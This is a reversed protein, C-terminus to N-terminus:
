GGVTSELSQRDVLGAYIGGKDVLEDHTGLEALHGEAIVAIQEADRVTSLRHAVVVTTRNQMLENMAQQVISESESDLASTAEDMIIIQPDKLFARAISIRQKQGGSLRVGREGVITEYGEDLALIFEHAYARRAAEMVEDISADPRGYLINATISGSFLIPEQPILAIQSRLSYITYDRIDRGDILIRGEQWEYFRMLMHTVTTKGGGSPGVLALSSCAPIHINLGNLVPNTNGPYTFTLNEITINGKFAPATVADPRDAVEPEVDFIAFIRDTAGLAAAVVLQMENLWELPTYLSGQMMVFQTLLGISVNGQTLAIYGGAGIVILQALSRTLTMCAQSLGDLQSNNVGINVLAINDDLFRQAEEEEGTFAKVVTAASLKEQANGSLMAMRDRIDRSNQKVKWGIKRQILIQVPLMCVSLCGLLPNQWLFYGVVVTIMGVSMWVQVFAKSVFPQVSDVDGVLRSTLSGSRNVDFFSHSLKQIHGYLDCRLNCMVHQVARAGVATRLFVPIPTLLAVMVGIAVLHRLQLWAQQTPIKGAGSEVLVNISQGVVWAMAVPTLLKILGFLTAAAFFPWFPRIYAILRKLNRAHAKKETPTDSKM